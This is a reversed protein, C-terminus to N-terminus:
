SNEKPILIKAIFKAPGRKIPHKSDTTINLVGGPVHVAINDNDTKKEYLAFAFASAVAGTGCALTFDEVGREFSISNIINPSVIQAFTVNTGKPAFSKHNRIYKCFEIDQTVKKIDDVFFITHPVGSDMYHYTYDIGKYNIIQYPKQDKIPPMTIAVEKELVEAKIPGSLTEFVFKSTSIGLQYCFLAMCRAANGCMEASSGDANYFDWKIKEQDNNILEVYVFGDAGIDFNRRCHKIALSRRDTENIYLKERIKPDTLNMFLFDNGAGTLKYIPQSQTQLKM